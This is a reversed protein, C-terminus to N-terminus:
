VPGNLLYLSGFGNRIELQLDRSELALIVFITIDQLFWFAVLFTKSLRQVQPTAHAM